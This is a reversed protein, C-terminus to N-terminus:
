IPRMMSASYASSPVSPASVPTHQRREGPPRQHVQDELEGNTGANAGTAITAPAIIASATAIPNSVPRSTNASVGIAASRSVHPRLDSEAVRLELPKPAM